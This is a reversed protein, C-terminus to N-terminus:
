EAAAVWTTGDTIGLILNLANVSINIKCKFVAMEESSFKLTSYELM